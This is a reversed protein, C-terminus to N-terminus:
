RLGHGSRRSARWAGARPWHVNIPVTTQEWLISGDGRLKADGAFLASVSGDSGPKAALKLWPAPDGGPIQATLAALAAADVAVVRVSHNGKEDEISAVDNVWALAVDSGNAPLGSVADPLPDPFGAVALADGGIAEWSAREQGASVTAATSAAMGVVSAAVVFALTAAVNAKVQSAALMPAASRARSAVNRTTRVLWPLVRAVVAGVALACLAPAALVLADAALSGESAGIGRARLALLSAVAAVGLTIELTVRM